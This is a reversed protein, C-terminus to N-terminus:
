NGEYGGVGVARRVNGPPWAPPAECSSTPAGGATVRSGSGVGDASASIAWCISVAATSSVSRM